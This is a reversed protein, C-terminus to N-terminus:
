EQPAPTADSKLFQLFGSDTYAATPLEDTLLAADVEALENASDENQVVYIMLLGAALALLPLASACRAWWEPVGAGLQLAASGGTRVVGAASASVVAKRRALAQQRAVRLRESVDNGVADSGQSLRAAIKRGFRDQLSMSHMDLNM